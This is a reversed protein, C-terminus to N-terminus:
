ASLREPLEGYGIITILLLTQLCTGASTLQRSRGSVQNTGLDDSSLVEDM